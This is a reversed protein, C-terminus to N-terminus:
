ETLATIYIIIELGKEGKNWSCNYSTTQESVDERGEPKLPTESVDCDEDGVTSTQSTLDAYESCRPSRLM